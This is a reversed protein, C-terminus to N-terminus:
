RSRGAYEWPLQSFRAQLEELSMERTPYITAHGPRHTSEKLVDSGDRMVALGDTLDTGMPLRHYQGRIPALTPDTFTSAGDPLRKGVLPQAPIVGDMMSPVDSPRPPRPFTTNGFAYLDEPTRNVGKPPVATQLGATIEQETGLRVAKGGWRAVASPVGAGDAAMPLVVAGAASWATTPNVGAKWQLDDLASGSLPSSAFTLLPNATAMATDLLGRVGGVMFQTREPSDAFPNVVGVLFSALHQLATVQTPADAMATRLTDAATEGARDLADRAAALKEVATLRDQLGDPATRLDLPGDAPVAGTLAAAARADAAARVGRQFTTLATTATDLASDFALVYSGLAHGATHFATAAAAFAAPQLAFDRHFAEAAPGTWTLDVRRLQRAADAFLDEYRILNQALTDTGALDGPVLAEVPMALSLDTFAREYSDNM